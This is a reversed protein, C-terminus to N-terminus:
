PNPTESMQTEHKIPEIINHQMPHQIRIYHLRKPFVFGARLACCGGWLLPKPNSRTRTASERCNANKLLKCGRIDIPLPFQSAWNLVAAALPLRFQVFRLAAFTVTILQRTGVSDQYDDDNYQITASTATTLQLDTTTSAVAAM